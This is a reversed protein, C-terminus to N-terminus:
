VNCRARGSISRGSLGETQYETKDAPSTAKRTRQKLMRRARRHSAAGTVSATRLYRTYEVVLRKPSDPQRTEAFSTSNERSYTLALPTQMPQPTFAALSRLLRDAEINVVFRMRRSGPALMAASIRCTENLVYWPFWLM